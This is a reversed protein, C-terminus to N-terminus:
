NDLLINANTKHRDTNPMDYEFDQREKHLPIHTLNEENNLKRWIAGKGSLVHWFESVTKHCVAKSVTGAKLTCHAIGGLHNSMLLQIEAEAPSIHQYEEISIM